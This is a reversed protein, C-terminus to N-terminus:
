SSCEELLKEIEEIQVCNSLDMSREITLLDPYNKLLYKCLRNSRNACANYLISKGARSVHYVFLDHEAVLYELIKIRKEDAGGLEGLFLAANWGKKSEKNVLDPYREAIYKVMEFRGHRCAVHLINIGQSSEEDVEIKCVDILYQLVGVKGSKAAFHGANRGQKDSANICKPFKEAIIKCAELHGNECASHFPNKLDETKNLDPVKNKSFYKILEVYGSKAAYQLPKWDMKNKKQIVAFSMELIEESNGICALHALTEGYKTQYNVVDFGEEKFIEITSVHGALAAYCFPNLGNKDKAHLLEDKSSSKCTLIYKVINTNGRRAAIHLATRGIKDAENLEIYHLLDHFIQENGGYAAHHLLTRGIQDRKSVNKSLISHLSYYEESEGNKCVDILSLFESDQDKPVEKKEQDGNSNNKQM